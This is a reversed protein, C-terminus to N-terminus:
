DFIEKTLAHAFIKEVNIKKSKARFITIKIEIELQFIIFKTYIKEAVFKGRKRM